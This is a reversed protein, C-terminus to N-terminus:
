LFLSVIIWCVAVQDRNTICSRLQFRQKYRLVERDKLYLFFHCGVTRNVYGAIKSASVSIQAVSEAVKRPCGLLCISESSHGPKILISTKSTLKKEQPFM